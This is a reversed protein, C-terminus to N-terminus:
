ARHALREEPHPLPIGPQGDMRWARTYVEPQAALLAAPGSGVRRGVPNARNGDGQDCEEQIKGVVGWCWRRRLNRNGVDDANGEEEEKARPFVGTGGVVISGEGKTINAEVNAM